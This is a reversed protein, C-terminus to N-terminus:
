VVSSDEKDDNYIGLGDFGEVMSFNGAFIQTESDSTIRLLM